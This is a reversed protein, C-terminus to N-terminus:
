NKFAFCHICHKQHLFTPQILSRSQHSFTASAKSGSLLSEIPWQCHTPFLLMLYKPTGLLWFAGGEGREIKTFMSSWATCDSNTQRETLQPVPWSFSLTPPDSNPTPPSPVSIHAPLSDSDQSSSGSVQLGCHLAPRKTAQM